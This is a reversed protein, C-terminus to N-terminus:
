VSYPCAMRLSGWSARYEAVAIAIISPFPQGASIEIVVHSSCIGGHGDDFSEDIQIKIRGARVERQLEMEVDMARVRYSSLVNTGLEAM